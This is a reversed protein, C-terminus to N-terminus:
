RLIMASQRQNTLEAFRRGAWGIKSLFM